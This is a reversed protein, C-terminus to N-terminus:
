ITTCEVDEESDELGAKETSPILAWRTNLLFSGFM